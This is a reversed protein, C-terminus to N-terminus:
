LSTNSNYAANYHGSDSAQKEKTQNDKDTSTGSAELEEDITADSRGCCSCSPFTFGPCIPLFSCCKCRRVASSVLPLDYCDQGDEEDSGASHKNWAILGREKATGPITNDLFFAIVGGVFMSTSLLVTILQDGVTSGTNIAGPNGKIWTSLSLGFFTAFGFIMLNRSSNLDVFQLNSVGVATIMGFMTMLIGGVIPEPITVFLAGFKGFMGFFIMIIGAVQIVRRSGIKTIGIASINESYSTTGSGSGWLGALLCGLGEIMIGRNIAHLPPPPAGSIRAAAYYDGISELMGALVGALMGFVGAFSVTPLGWQGPYPFRFWKADNLVFIRSDTRAPYTTANPFTPFVNTETLIASIVWSVIIALLIPFVDFIPFSTRHCGSGKKYGFVPIKVFSLYQSFLFILCITLAAIGWHTACSNAAADFLAIGILTITPAICLPGIFKMLFGVIGTFGIVVQFCSAVAIAGQVELMRPKWIPTSDLSLNMSNNLMSGNVPSGMDSTKDPCKWIPLSLIAFTPALFSFTAGQVIPLRVGITSQIVTVLGSVFFVTGIVESKAVFDDGFCMAETVVLPVTLTSGFMILFHQFGLLLCVYWPPTDNVSYYLQMKPSKAM